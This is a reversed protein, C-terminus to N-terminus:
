ILKALIFGVMFGLMVGVVFGANGTKVPPSDPWPAPPPPANRVRRFPKPNYIYDRKNKNM